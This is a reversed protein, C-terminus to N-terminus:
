IGEGDNLKKVVANVIIRDRICMQYIGLISKDTKGKSFENYVM